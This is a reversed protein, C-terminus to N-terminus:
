YPLEANTIKVSRYKQMEILMKLVRKHFERDARKFRM